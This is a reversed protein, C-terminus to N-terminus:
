GRDLLELVPALTDISAMTAPEMWFQVHTIGERALARLQEALNEPTTFTLLPYRGRFSRLEATYRSM